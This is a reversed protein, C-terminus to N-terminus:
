STELFYLLRAKGTFIKVKGRAGGGLVMAGGGGVCPSIPAYQQGSLAPSELLGGAGRVGVERATAALCGWSSKSTM